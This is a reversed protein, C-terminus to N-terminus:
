KGYMAWVPEVAAFAYADNNVHGWSECYLRWGKGNDGDHDPEGGYDAHELWGAAFDAAQELTMPFPLRTMGPSKGGWYLVLRKGDTSYGEVKRGPPNFLSLATKLTQAGQSTMDFHFNDM